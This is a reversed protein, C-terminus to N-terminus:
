IYLIGLSKHISPKDQTGSHANLLYIIIRPFLDSPTHMEVTCRKKPDKTKKKSRPQWLTLSKGMGPGGSHHKQRSALTSQSIFSHIWMFSKENLSYTDSLKEWCHFPLQYWLYCSGHSFSQIYLCIFPLSKHSIM